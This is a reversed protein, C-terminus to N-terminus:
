GSFHLCRYGQLLHGATSLHVYHLFPYRLGDWWLRAIEAPLFREGKKRLEDFSLNRPLPSTRSKTAGMTASRPWAVCGQLLRLCLGARRATGGGDGGSRGQSTQVLPVLGRPGNCRIPALRTERDRRLVGDKVGGRRGRLIAAAHPPAAKM